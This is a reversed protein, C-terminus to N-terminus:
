NWLFSEQSALEEKGRRLSVRWATVRGNSNYSDGTVQFKSTNSRRVDTVEEEVSQTTLGTNAQRYEFRVTVPQSRDDAQWHVTYYHGGRAMIEAKTVAGYLRYDRQFEIAPDKSVVPKGPILHYYDVKTIRGGPGVSVSSCSSLALGLCVVVLLRHFVTRAEPTM